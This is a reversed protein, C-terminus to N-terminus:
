YKYIKYTYTKKSAIVRGFINNKTLDEILLDVKIKFVRSIIDPRVSANSNRIKHVLNGIEPWKPNCTFTIFLDPHGLKRCVALCDQYIQQMFRPSGTYSAPLVIRKGVTSADTDGRNVCDVINNYVESRLTKQNALVWLLRGHEICCWADGVFQLFLRGGRILSQGENARIQLRFAYHERMTMTSRKNPLPSTLSRHLINPRFGDEGFPFLLPYQLAMFSPHINSIRKLKNSKYEVIIDRSNTLDDNPVLAAFEYANKPINTEQGDTLRDALLRLNIAMYDTECFRERVQKFNKVMENERILMETLSQIINENVTDEHIPFNLRGSYADEADYMYLQAFVVSKGELPLLSGIRHYSQGNMRFVYPGGGNNCSTDVKGGLSTFAFMNNYLRIHRRFGICQEEIGDLLHHLEIPSPQLLPLQVKGQNCCLTFTFGQKRQQTESQEYMWMIAECNECERNPEGINLIESTQGALM